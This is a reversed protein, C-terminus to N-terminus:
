HHERRDRDAGGDELQNIIEIFRDPVPNEGLALTDYFHRLRQGIEAQVSRSLAPKAGARLGPLPSDDSDEVPAPYDRKKSNDHRM